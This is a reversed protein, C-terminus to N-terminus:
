RGNKGRLKIIEAEGKIQNEDGDSTVVFIKNFPYEEFKIENIDSYGDTLFIVCKSEPLKDRIYDFIVKHSTGGGGNIKIKMIKEINGNEILYDDQVDVDHTLLRMNLRNSYGKAIGIIESLFDTLETEGISGSTDIGVVIDIREKLEAPLYIGVSRSKKHAKAYTHNYPIEQTIYRSLLAKWNVEEKHLKDYLKELGAPIDGKMKSLTLAEQTKDNWEKTLKRTEAESLKEYRHEDWGKPGLDRSDSGDDSNSGGSGDSDKNDSDSNDEGIEEYIEEALKEDCKDITKGFIEIADNSSSVISGKPLTYNNDKIIQNVVIDTAINWTFRDKSKLRLLHEFSVHLLEHLIVAETEDNTLGDIFEESFYLDGRANVGVGAGKPLIGNKDQKVKLYLSLYAFFSNKRQIQIKARTIKDIAKM